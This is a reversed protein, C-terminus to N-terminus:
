NNIKSGSNKKRVKPIIKGTSERNIKNIKGFEDASWEMIADTTNGGVSHIFVLDHVYQNENCKLYRWLNDLNNIKNSEILMKILLTLNSKKRTQEKPKLYLGQGILKEKNDSGDKFLHDSSPLYGLVDIFESLRKKLKKLEKEKETLTLTPHNQTYKQQQIIADTTHLIRLVWFHECENPELYITKNFIWENWENVETIEFNVELANNPALM